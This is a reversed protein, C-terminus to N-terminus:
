FKIRLGATPAINQTTRLPRRAQPSSLRDSRFIRGTNRRMQQQQHPQGHAQQRRAPCGVGCEVSLPAAVSRAQAVAGSSGGCEEARAGTTEPSGPGFCVPRDLQLWRFARNWGRVKDVVFGIFQRVRSGRLEGRQQIKAVGATAADSIEGPEAFRDTFEPTRLVTPGVRISSALRFTLRLATV